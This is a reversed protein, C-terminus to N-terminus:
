RMPKQGTGIPRAPPKRELGLDLLRAAPERSAITYYVSAVGSGSDTSKGGVSATPGSLWYADSGSTLTTKPTVISTAPPTTDITFRRTIPTTTTAGLRNKGQFSATYTGDGLAASQLYTWTDTSSDATPTLLAPVAANTGITVLLQAPGM